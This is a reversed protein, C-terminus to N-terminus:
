GVVPEPCTLRIIERGDGTTSRVRQEFTNVAQAVQEALPILDRGLPTLAYGSASRAVLVHGLRRELEAVRRQVTSQNVGLAKAAAITSGHRGIALLHKLDNWDFM